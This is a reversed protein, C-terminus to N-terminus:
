LAKRYESLAEAKEFCWQCQEQEWNGPEGHAISGNFCNNPCRAQELTEILKSVRKDSARTNWTTIALKPSKHVCSQEICLNQCEIWIRGSYTKRKKAEGGCFPCNRLKESM